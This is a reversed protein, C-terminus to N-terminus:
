IKLLKKEIREYQNLIENREQDNVCSEQFDLNRIIDLQAKAKELNERDNKNEYCSVVSRLGESFDTLDPCRWNSTKNYVKKGFLEKGAGQRIMIDSVYGFCDGSAQGKSHSAGEAILIPSCIVLGGAVGGTIYVTVETGYTLGTLVYSAVTGSIQKTQKLLSSSSSSPINKIADECDGKALSNEFKKQQTSCSVFFFVTLLLLFIKKLM